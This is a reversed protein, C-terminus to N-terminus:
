GESDEINEESDKKTKEKKKKKEKKPPKVEEVVETNEEVSETDSTEEIKDKSKKTKEKKKKKEKKSDNEEGGNVDEIIETTEEVKEASADYFLKMRVRRNIARGKETSNDAIPQTQGYGEAFVRSESVGHSIIYDRVANARKKSIIMNLEATGANDTHGEVLLNITPYALLISVITDLDDFSEEKIDWSALEFFINNAAEETKELIEEPIEEEDEKVRWNSKGYNFNIVLGASHYLYMDNYKKISPGVSHHPAGDIYDDFLMNFRSQALLDLQDSLAYRIGLGAAFHLKHATRWSERDNPDIVNQGKEQLYENNTKIKSSYQVYGLGAQVFPRIRSDTPLLVDNNLKYRLGGVLDLVRAHFSIPNLRNRKQYGLNGVSGFVTFDFNKNYYMSLAGGLAQYTPNKAFFIDNALDGSYERVGGSIELGFRKVENQAKVLGASFLLLALTCFILKYKKIM